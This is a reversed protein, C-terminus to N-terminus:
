YMGEGKTKVLYFHENYIWSCQTENAIKDYNELRKITETEFGYVKNSLHMLSYYGLLPAIPSYAQKTDYSQDITSDTNTVTLYTVM